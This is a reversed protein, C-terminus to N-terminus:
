NRIRSISRPRALPMAYEPSGRLNMFAALPSYRLTGGASSQRAPQNAGPWVEYCEAIHLLSARAGADRM